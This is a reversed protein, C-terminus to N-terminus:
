QPRSLSEQPPQKEAEAEIAELLKGSIVIREQDAPPAPVEAAEGAGLTSSRAPLQRGDFEAAAAAAAAASDDAPPATITPAPEASRVIEGSVSREDSSTGSLGLYLAIILVLSGAGLALILPASIRGAQSPPATITKEIPRAPDTIWESWSGAYLAPLKLGASAMALINHCATIGSGCYCVVPKKSNIAMTFKERLKEPTQFRGDAQLNGSSPSCVANPIHGAVPDIPEVEGNFRKIDRADILLQKNGDIADVTLLEVRPAMAAYRSTVSSDAATSTSATQSVPLGAATWAQWGGDLVVVNDHGIWQLMWWMRSSSSGGGDDYLVVQTEPTIGLSVVTAIWEAKGPLPHRSTKGAVHPASLVRNVDVFVAGPVHGAAYARTGHGADMLSFRLDFIRLSPAAAQLLANLQDATILPHPM